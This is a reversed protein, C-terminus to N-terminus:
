YRIRRLEGEVTSSVVSTSGYIAVPVTDYGLDAIVSRASPSLSTPNTLLVVGGQRAALVGGGLADPFNLGTALGFYDSTAWSRAIGERAVQAATEYRDVGAWRIASVGPMAAVASAVSVSVAADSGAVVVETTGLSSLADATSAPLQLPRTLLVPISNEAALPSVALADAYLDGRVLFARAITPQGTVTTLASAVAAATEYRDAGAVRQVALGASSLQQAVAQDVASTGGILVVKTAGLRAIESLLGTPLSTRRTLLLPSGYAGALSAGTLADPFDEGSAVVTTTVTGSAFGAVSQAIATTYRDAGQIRTVSPAPPPVIADLADRLQLLGNGYMLDWGPAGLDKASSLLANEIEASTAGPAHSRLLAVAGSVFPAAMSTGYLYTYTHLGSYTYTSLIGSTGAVGGPATIDMQSGYNSYNALTDTSDSAGVCIVHDCAAPYYIDNRGENGAAGVLVVGRAHAYDVAEQMLVRGSAGIDAATAGLSMNVVDVGLDAAYYLGDIFDSNSGTYKGIVKIPVIKVGPATGAVGTANNSAAAIIGAVHTGHGNLDNADEDDTVFDYDRTLDLAPALEPHTLDAGTDIVGVTVFAEGREIDWAAEAQIRSYAWQAAYRPDDPTWLPRLVQNDEAAIRVGSVGALSARLTEADTGEPIAVVVGRNGYMTRQIHLGRKALTARVSAASGDAWRVIVGSATSHASVQAEPRGFAPTILGVLLVTTVLTAITSNLARRM